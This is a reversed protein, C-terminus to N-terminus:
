LQLLSIVHTLKECSFKSSGFQIDKVHNEIKKATEHDMISDFIKSFITPKSIPRRKTPKPLIINGETSGYWGIVEDPLLGKVIANMLWTLNDIFIQTNAPKVQDGSSSSDTLQQIHEAYLTCISAVKGRKLKQVNRLM